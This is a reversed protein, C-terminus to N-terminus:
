RKFRWHYSFFNRKFGRDDYGFFRVISSEDGQLEMLFDFLKLIRSRMTGSSLESIWRDAFTLNKEWHAM